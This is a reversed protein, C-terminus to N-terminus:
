LVNVDEMGMARAEEIEVKKRRIKKRKERQQERERESNPRQPLVIPENATAYGGTAYGTTDTEYRPGSMADSMYDTDYYNKNYSPIKNYTDYYDMMPEAHQLKVKNKSGKPRGRRIKKEETQTETTTKNIEDQKKNYYERMNDRNALANLEKQFQSILGSEPQKQLVSQNDRPLVPQQLQLGSNIVKLQEALPPTEKRVYKRKRKPATQNVNM